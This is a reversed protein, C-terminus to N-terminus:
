LPKAASAAHFIANQEVIRRPSPSARPVGEPSTGDLAARNAPICAESVRLGSCHVTGKVAEEELMAGNSAARRALSPLDQAFAVTAVAATVIDWRSVLSALSAWSFPLTTSGDADGEGLRPASRLTLRLRLLLARLM